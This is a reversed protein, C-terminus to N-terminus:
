SVRDYTKLFIEYDVPYVEGEIGRVLFDGDKGSMIGEKTEVEFSELIRTAQVFLPRKRYEECKLGFINEKTFHKM